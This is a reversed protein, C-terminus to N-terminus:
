MYHELPKDLPPIKSFRYAYLGLTDRDGKEVYLFHESGKGEVGLVMCPFKINYSAQSLIAKKQDENKPVVLDGIKFTTM